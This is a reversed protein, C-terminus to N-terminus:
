RRARSAACDIAPDAAPAAAERTLGYGTSDSRTVRVMEAEFLPGHDGDDLGHRLTRVAVHAMEHILIKRLRKKKTRWDGKFVDRKFMLLFTNFYIKHAWRPLFKPDLRPPAPGSAGKFWAPVWWKGDASFLLRNQQLIAVKPLKGEWFEVNLAEYERRLWALWRNVRRKENLSLRLRSPALLSGPERMTSPAPPQQWYLHAPDGDQWLLIGADCGNPCRWFGATPFRKPWWREGCGECALTTTWGDALKSPDIGLEALERKLAAVVKSQSSRYADKEV